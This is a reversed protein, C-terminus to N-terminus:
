FQGMDRELIVKRLLLYRHEKYHTIEGSIRLRSTTGKTRSVIREAEELKKCPLLRVPQDQLTNDSEFRAEWWEGKDDQAITVLRDVRMEGRDEDLQDRGGRPAVSPAIRIKESEDTVEIAEGPTRRLMKALIDDASSRVEPATPVYQEPPETQESPLTAPRSAPEPQVALRKARRRRPREVKVNRLLVFARNKYVMTEGTVRFVGSSRGSLDREVAALWKCPVVWRPMTLLPTKTGREPILTLVYWGVDPRYTIRARHDDIASGPAPMLPRPPKHEYDRPKTIPVPPSQLLMGRLDTSGTQPIEAPLRRIEGLEGDDGQATRPSGFISLMLVLIAL